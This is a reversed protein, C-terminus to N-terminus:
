GSDVGCYLCKSASLFVGCDLCDLMDNDASVRHADKKYLDKITFKFSNSIGGKLEELLYEKNEKLFNM